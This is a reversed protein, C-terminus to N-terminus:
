SWGRGEKVEDNNRWATTRGRKWRVGGRMAVVKGEEDSEERGLLSTGGREEETQM